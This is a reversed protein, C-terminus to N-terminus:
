HGNRRNGQGSGRCAGGLQPRERQGLPDGFQREGPGPDRGPLLSQIYRQLGAADVTVEVTYLRPAAQDWPRSATERARHPEGRRNAIAPDGATYRQFQGLEGAAAFGGAMSAGLHSGGGGPCRRARCSSCSPPWPPRRRWRAFLRGTTVPERDPITSSSPASVAVADERRRLLRRRDDAPAPPAVVVRRGGIVRAGGYARSPGVATTGATWLKRLAMQIKGEKSALVLTEAQEPTVLVTIVPVPMPKGEADRAITQGAAITPVNQMLIKTTQENTPTGKSMTLLVDV